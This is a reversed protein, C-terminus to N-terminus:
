GALALAVAAVVIAALVSACGSKKAAKKRSVAELGDLLKEALERNGGIANQLVSIAGDRDGKELLIRAAAGAVEPAMREEKPIQQPPQDPLKDDAM